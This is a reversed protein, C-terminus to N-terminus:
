TERLEEEECEATEKNNQSVVCSVVGSRVLVRQVLCQM